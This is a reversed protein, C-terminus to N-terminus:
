QYTSLRFDIVYKIASLLGRISTCRQFIITMISLFILKNGYIKVASDRFKFTELKKKVEFRERQVLADRTNKIMLLKLEPRKLRLEVINSALIRTENWCIISM